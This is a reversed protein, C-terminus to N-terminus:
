KFCADPIYFLFISTHFSLYLRPVEGVVCMGVVGFFRINVHSSYLFYDDILVIVDDAHFHV